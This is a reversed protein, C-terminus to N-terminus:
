SKRLQGFGAQLDKILDEMNEFGVQLRLLAGRNNWSLTPRYSRVDSMVILSEYGGWSHGMQFIELNNLMQEVSEQTYEPKLILGMLGSAGTFDRKWLLYGADTPLAPYLIEAVEERTQLWEALLMAQQYHKELRVSLTRLGRLGLFVDEPGVCQGLKLTHARVEEFCAQNCVIVGLFSDSHGTLYKTGSHIAVDAGLSIPKLNIPTAWTNDILTKIRHKKCISAISPLDQVEFTLSGPSELYVLKTNPRILKEIEAGICPHYYETEIQFRKLSDCFNRTPWYVSDSVLLHDGASIFSWIATTIAGLGSSAVVAGQANELDAVADEFARCTPSGFRGYAPWDRKTPNKIVSRMEQVDKYIATSGRFIPPSVYGYQKHPDNGIHALRTEISFKHDKKKLSDSMTVGKM